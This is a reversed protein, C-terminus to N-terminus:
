TRLVISQARIKRGFMFAQHSYELEFMVSVAMNMQKNRPIEDLISGLSIDAFSFTSANTIKITIEKRQQKHLEDEDM